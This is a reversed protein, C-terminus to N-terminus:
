KRGLKDVEEALKMAGRKAQLLKHVEEGSTEPDDAGLRYAASRNGSMREMSEAMSRFIVEKPINNKGLYRVIWYYYRVKVKM